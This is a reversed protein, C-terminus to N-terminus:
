KNIVYKEITFYTSKCLIAKKYEDYEKFEIGSLNLVELDFKIVDLSKEVHIERARGYDYIRYTIDSNQQIEAIIVGECIAHVLGSNILFCDGKKVEIKNLYDEIRGEKIAKEFTEKDCDKTGVILSAVPNADVVYWAETKGLSSEVKKAYEDDPHVQVSLKEKSNILKVLLPFEEVDVKEGLLDKGYMEIIKKFTKGKLEGNSVISMGNPHCAIDWSEGINGSPLNERFEELDRGGWVKEYYLNEFKIPYM